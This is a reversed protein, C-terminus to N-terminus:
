LDIKNSLALNKPCLRAIHIVAQFHHLPEVEVGKRLGPGLQNSASCGSRPGLGCRGCVNHYVWYYVMGNVGM